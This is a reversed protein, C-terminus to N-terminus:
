ANPVSRCQARLAIIADVIRDNDTDIHEGLASCVAERFTDAHLYFHTGAPFELMRNIDKQSFWVGNRLGEDEIILTAIAANENIKEAEKIAERAECIFPGFNEFAPNYCQKSIEEVIDKLAQLLRKM